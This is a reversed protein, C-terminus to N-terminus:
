ILCRDHMKRFLFSSVCRFKHKRLTGKFKDLGFNKRMQLTLRDPIGPTEEREGICGYFFLNLYAKYIKFTCLHLLPFSHFFIGMIICNQCKAPSAPKRFFTGMDNGKGRLIHIVGFDIQHIHDIWSLIYGQLRHIVPRGKKIHGGAMGIEFNFCKVILGHDVIGTSKMKHGPALAFVEGFSEAAHLSYGTM